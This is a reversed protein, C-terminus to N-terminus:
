GHARNYYACRVHLPCDPCHPNTRRCMEQGHRRLLNHAEVLWECSSNLHPAIDQQVSRYSTRYDGTERGYGLRLLVRLGNSDLGLIPHTKTFLLIKEAGPEGIMPFAVLSKKAKPLPLVLAQKLDGAWEDRVIRASEQIRRARELFAISGGAKTAEAVAGISAALIKAPTLGVREKLLRFAQARRDDDALYAVQEWLILEFPDSTVPPIPKGYFERLDRVVESLPLEKKKM